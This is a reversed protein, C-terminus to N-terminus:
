MFSHPVFRSTNQTILSEEERIGIGCATGDVLWSGIVITNGEFRPTPFFEQYVSAGGRYPGETELVVKGDNVVAINAGERGFIPKCVYAGPLPNWSAPLLNPHNPNLEWLLPLLAKNSLLMKWPPEIWQVPTQTLNPGFKERLMWEWPYLKFVHGMPREALDVFQRRPANWGIDEVHIYETALGAQMAVDRMYTATM